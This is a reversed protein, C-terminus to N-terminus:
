NGKKVYKEDILQVLPNRVTDKGYMEVVGIEELDSLREIADVLGNRGRIDNQNPDGTIIIKADLGMRTLFMHIQEPITNQAEDLIVVADSFTVGRQFALPLTILKNEDILRRIEKAPLYKGLIDFIPIMYPSIKENYDGPLFGLNEGYAEVCPRTLIVRNYEQDELRLLAYLISLHTKGVGAPGHLISIPKNQICQIARKQSDNKASLVPRKHFQPLQLGSKKRSM